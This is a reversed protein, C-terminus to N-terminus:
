KATGTDAVISIEEEPTGSASRRRGISRERQKRLYHEVLAKAEEAVEARRIAVELSLRLENITANASELEQKVADVDSTKELEMFHPEDKPTSQTIVNAREAKQILSEYEQISITIVSCLESSKATMDKGKIGVENDHADLKSIRLENKAKEAEIALQQVALYLGSLSSRARAEAAEAAAIQSRGKHLESKLTAIQVELGLERESSKSMEGKMTQIDANLKDIQHNLDKAEERASQLEEELKEVDGQLSVICTQKESDTKEMVEM